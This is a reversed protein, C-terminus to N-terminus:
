IRGTLTSTPWRSLVTPGRISRPSSRALTRGRAAAILAGTEALRGELANLWAADAPGETLLRMRERLAKDYAAAHGAHAPEAAFTLRDFFRRRESPGELFLRDQQPTLWVLRVFESLRAPPAPAGEVRVVRRLATASEV